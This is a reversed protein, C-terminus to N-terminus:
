QLLLLFNDGTQSQFIHQKSTNLADVVAFIEILFDM